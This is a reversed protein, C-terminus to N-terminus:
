EEADYAGVRCSQLGLTGIVKGKTMLPLAISSRLGASLDDEDDIFRPDQAMDYRILPQGTSVVANTQASEPRRSKGPHWDSPVNCSM